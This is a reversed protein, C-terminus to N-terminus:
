EEDSDEDETEVILSASPSFLEGVTAALTPEYVKRPMVSAIRFKYEHKYGKPMDVDDFAGEGETDLTEFEERCEVFRYLEDLTVEPRLRRRFVKGDVLRVQLRVGGTAPEKMDRWVEKAIAKKWQSKRIEIMEIEKERAIREEEARRAAEAAAARERERRQDNELSRQYALNSQDNIQRAEEQARRRSRISDLHPQHGAQASRLKSIYAEPSLSGQVRAIVSMDSSATSRTNPPTFSILLSTPLSTVELARSVQYAESESVRGGWLIFDNNTLFTALEPKALTQRFFNTTDDHEDSTLIVLLFRMDKKAADLAQAYGGEFWPLKVGVTGDGEGKEGSAVIEEFDRM